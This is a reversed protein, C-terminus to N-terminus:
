SKTHLVDFVHALVFSLTFVYNFVFFYSGLIYIHTKDSIIEIWLWLLKFQQIGDEWPMILLVDMFNKTVYKDLDQTFVFTKHKNTITTVFQSMHNHLLQLSIDIRSAGDGGEFLPHVWCCQFCWILICIWWCDKQVM